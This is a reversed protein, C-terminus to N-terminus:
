LLPLYQHLSNTHCARWWPGLSAWDECCLLSSPVPMAGKTSLLFWSMYYKSVTVGSDQTVVSKGPLLTTSLCRHKAPTNPNGPLALPSSFSATTSLLHILGHCQQSALHPSEISRCPSTRPLQKQLLPWSAGKRSGIAPSSCSMWLLLLAVATSSPVQWTAVM